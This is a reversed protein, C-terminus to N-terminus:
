KRGYRWERRVKRFTLWLTGCTVAFVMFHTLYTIVDDTFKVWEISVSCVLSLVGIAVQPGWHGGSLQSHESSM